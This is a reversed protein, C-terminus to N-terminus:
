PRLQCFLDRLGNKSERGPTRTGEGAMGAGACPQVARSNATVDTITITEPAVTGTYRADPLNKLLQALTLM